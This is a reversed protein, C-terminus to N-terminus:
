VTRRQLARLMAQERVIANRNMQDMVAQIEPSIQGYPRPSLDTLSPENLWGAADLPRLGPIDLNFCFGEDPVVTILGGLVKIRCKARSFSGCLALEGDGTYIAGSGTVVMSLIGSDFPLSLDTQQTFTERM